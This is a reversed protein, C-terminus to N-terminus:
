GRRRSRATRRAAARWHEQMEEDSIGLLTTIFDAVGQKGGLRYAHDMAPRQENFLQYASQPTHGKAELAEIVWDKTGAGWTDPLGFAAGSGM